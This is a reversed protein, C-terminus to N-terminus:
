LLSNRWWVYILVMMPHRSAVSEASEATQQLNNYLIWKEDGTVLRKLVVENM